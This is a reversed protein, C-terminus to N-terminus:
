SLAVVLCKIIGLWSEQNMLKYFYLIVSSRNLIQIFSLCLSGLQLVLLMFRQRVVFGSFKSLIQAVTLICTVVSYGTFKLIRHFVIVGFVSTSILHSLQVGFKLFIFYSYPFVPLHCSKWNNIRLIYEYLNTPLGM